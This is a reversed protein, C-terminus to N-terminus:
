YQPQTPLLMGGILSHKSNLTRANIMLLIVLLDSDTGGKKEDNNDITEKPLLSRDNKSTCVEHENKSQM